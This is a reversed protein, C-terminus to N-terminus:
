TSIALSILNHSLSSLERRNMDDSNIADCITVEVETKSKALISILTIIFNDKGIYSASDDFEGNNHYRLAVPQVPKAANIAAQFLSSHFKGVVRGTTTTGEPFLVLSRKQKLATTLSNTVAHLVKKNNRQIFIVGFGYALFGFVPWYRITSKSLFTVPFVSALIVIDLFSIHNSVLLSTVNTHKGKQTITLGLIETTRKSWWQILAKGKKTCYWSRGQLLPLFICMIIATVIHISLNVGRYSLRASKYFM